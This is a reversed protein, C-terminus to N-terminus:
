DWNSRKPAAVAAAWVAATHYAESSEYVHAWKLTTQALVSGPVIAIAIAVIVRLLKRM